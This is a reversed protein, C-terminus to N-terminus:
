FLAQLPLYRASETMLWGDELIQAIDELIADLEGRLDKFRSMLLIHMPDDEPLDITSAPDRSIDCDSIWINFRVRLDDIRQATVLLSDRTIPSSAMHARWAIESCIRLEAARDFCQQSLSASLQFPRLQQQGRGSEDTEERTEQVASGSASPRHLSDLEM